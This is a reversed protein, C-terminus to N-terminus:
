FGIKSPFITNVKSYHHDRSSLTLPGLDCSSWGGLLSTQISDCLVHQQVWGSDGPVSRGIPYVWGWAMGCHNVGAVSHCCCFSGGLGGTRAYVCVCVCMCVELVAPPWDRIFAPFPCPCFGLERVEICSLLQPVTKNRRETRSRPSAVCGRFGCGQEDGNRRRGLRAESIRKLM